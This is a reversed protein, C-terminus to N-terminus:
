TCRNSLPPCVSHLTHSSTGDDRGNKSPFDDPIRDRQSFASEKGEERGGEKCAAFGAEKKVAAEYLLVGLLPPCTSDSV